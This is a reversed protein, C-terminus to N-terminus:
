STFTHPMAHSFAACICHIGVSVLILCREEEAAIKGLMNLKQCHILPVDPGWFQNLGEAWLFSPLLDSIGSLIFYLQSNFLKGNLWFM